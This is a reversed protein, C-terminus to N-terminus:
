RRVGGARNSIMRSVIEYDIHVGERKALDLASLILNALRNGLFPTSEPDGAMLTISELPSINHWGVEEMWQYHIEAIKDLTMNRTIQENM